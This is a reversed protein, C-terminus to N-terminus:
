RLLMMKMVRHYEERAGGLGKAVLQYFYVGSALSSPNFLLSYRGADYPQNDTLLAVEQGLTSFVRVTVLAKTPLEFAISTTPNFPNPFNQELSFVTPLDSGRQALIQIQAVSADTITLSGERGGGTQRLEAGNNVFQLGALEPERLHWSITVPYSTSQLTIPLRGPQGQLVDVFRQSGFRVDFVNGPPTPPLEFRELDLRPDASAAFYLTQVAGAHDTITVSNFAALEDALVAGEAAKPTNASSSIVLTGVGASKVWYGKSPRLSDAILYSGVYGFYSSKVTNTPSQIVSGPHVAKSGAGILNWGQVLKITDLAQPLGEIGITQPSTFKLWYGTGKKLTDAIFYTSTYGFANSNATPFVTSRRAVGSPTLPLSVINWGQNFAYPTYTRHRIQVTTIAPNTIVYSSQTKMNVTFQAGQTAQDELLVM